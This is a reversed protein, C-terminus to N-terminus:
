PYWLANVAEATRAALEDGSEPGVMTSAPKSSYSGGEVAAKTPLYSIFGDTLQCIFIQEAKVRSRIRLGYEVFLEFPNTALAVSGIRMIHVDFATFETTQQLEWRMVVGIDDFLSVQDASTMPNQPSFKRRKQEIRESSKRFDDESVKRIPFKMPLVRHMFVPEVQISNVARRYGREVADAIREGICICEEEMSFNRFVEGAQTSWEALQKSNTKSLRVLDIPTQDGAAGCISLVFINGLRSRVASRAPGWFDATIFSHLEYVQAPCPVDILVGTLARDTDWTYLIDVTHDTTGEFRLFSPHSCDGYMRSETRGDGLDFVPRRNFGVAAYDSAYSIGGPKRNRWAIMVASIVKEQFFASAEDPSLMDEPKEAPVTVDGGIYKEFLALDIDEAFLSSNHTHTASFTIYEARIGEIGDVADRIRKMNPEYICAADLSVMICQQDGKSMALATVSIPDHVYASTRYYFQGFLSIPRVPTISVESWGIMLQQINM